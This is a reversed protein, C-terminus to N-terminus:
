KEKNEEYYEKYETLIEIKNNQTLLDEKVNGAKWVFGIKNLRKIHNETLPAHQRDVLEAGNYVRYLGRIITVIEGIHVVKGYETSYFEINGRMSPWRTKKGKAKNDKDYEELIEVKEKLTLCEDRVTGEVFVFDISELREVQERTLPKIPGYKTKKGLYVQYSKRISNIVHCINVEGNGFKINERTTPWRLEKNNSKHWERWEILTEIKEGIKTNKARENKFIDEKEQGTYKELALNGRTETPNFLKNDFVINKIKELNGIHKTVRKVFEEADKGMEYVVIYFRRTLERNEPASLINVLEKGIKGAFPSN